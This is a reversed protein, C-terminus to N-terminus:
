RHGIFDGPGLDVLGDTGGELRVASLAMPGSQSLPTGPRLAACRILASQENLTREAYM